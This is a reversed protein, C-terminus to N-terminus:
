PVVLIQGKVLHGPDNGLVDKNAELLQPWLTADGYVQRAIRSLSDGSKVKYTRPRNPAADTAPPTDTDLGRTRVVEALRKESAQLQSILGLSEKLTTETQRLAGEAHKLKRQLEIIQAQMTRNTAILTEAEAIRAMLDEGALKSIRLQADHLRKQIMAQKQTDPRLELYRTLHYTALIPDNKHDLFLNGLDLHLRSLEPNRDLVDHFIRTADDWKGADLAAYGKSALASEKEAADLEGPLEGCGALLFILGVTAPTM